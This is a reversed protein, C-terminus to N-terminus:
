SVLRVSSTIIGLLRQSRSAGGGGDDGQQDSEEHSIQERLLEGALIETGPASM